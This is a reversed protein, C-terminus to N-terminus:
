FNLFLETNNKSNLYNNYIKKYGEVKVMRNLEKKAEQKTEFSRVELTQTPTTAYASYVTEITITYM